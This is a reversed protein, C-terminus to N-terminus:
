CVMQLINNLKRVEVNMQGLNLIVLRFYQFVSSSSSLIIFLKEEMLYFFFSHSICGSSGGSEDEISFVAKVKSKVTLPIVQKTSSHIFCCSANVSLSCRM